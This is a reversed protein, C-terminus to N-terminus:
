YYPDTNTQNHNEEFGSSFSDFRMLLHKTPSERLPSDIM